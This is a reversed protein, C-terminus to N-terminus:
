LILNTLRCFQRCNHYDKVDIRKYFPKRERKYLRSCFNIHKKINELSENNKLKFINIKLRSRNSFDTEYTIDSNQLNLELKM